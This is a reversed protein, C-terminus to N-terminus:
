GKIPGMGCGPNGPQRACSIGLALPAYAESWAIRPPQYEDGDAAAAAADAAVPAREASRKPAPRTVPRANRPGV